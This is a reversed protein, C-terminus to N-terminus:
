ADRGWFFAIVLFLTTLYWLAGVAFSFESPLGLGKLLNSPASVIAVLYGLGLTDIFFSKISTFADTFINGTEPSVSSEGSPLVSSPNTDNLLYLSTNQCGQQEIQGFITGQCNYFTPADAAINLAAAQGLFLMANISLVIILATTLNSM